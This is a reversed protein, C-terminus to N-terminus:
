HPNNSVAKCIECSGDAIEKITYTEGDRMLERANVDAATLTEYREWDLSTGNWMIHFHTSM